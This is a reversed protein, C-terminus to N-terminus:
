VLHGAAFLALGIPVCPFQGVGFAALAFCIVAGLILAKGMTLGKM